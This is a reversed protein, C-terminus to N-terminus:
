RLLDTIETVVECPSPLLDIQYFFFTLYAARKHMTLDLPYEVQWLLKLYPGLFVLLACMVTFGGVAALCICM